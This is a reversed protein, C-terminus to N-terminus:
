QPTKIISNKNKTNTKPCFVDWCVTRKIKQHNIEETVGVCAFCKVIGNSYTITVLGVPINMEHTDVAHYGIVYHNKYTAYLEYKGAEKYVLMDGDPANAIKLRNDIIQWITDNGIKPIEKFKAVQANGIVFFFLVKTLLLMKLLLFKKM